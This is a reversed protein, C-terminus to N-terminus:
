TMDWSLRAVTRSVAYQLATFMAVLECPVCSSAIQALVAALIYNLQPQFPFSAGTEALSTVVRM